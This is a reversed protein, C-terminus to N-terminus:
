EAGQPGALVERLSTLIRETLGWVVHEGIHYAPFHRDVGLIRLTTERYVGESGLEALEVWLALAVEDNPALVPREPVAFVFPRVVIPNPTPTRPSVDGLVGLWCAPDLTLGVEERTERVATARLDPDDRQYRGGPLGMHGSWPDGAREARRILLVADPSPAIVVAVGALSADPHDVTASRRHALRSALLRQLPSLPLRVRWWPLRRRFAPRAQLLGDHSFWRSDPRPTVDPARGEPGRM